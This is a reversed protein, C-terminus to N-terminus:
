GQGRSASKSLKDWGLATVIGLLLSAIAASLVMLTRQPKSKKDPAIAKDIVQFSMTEKAEDVKALELQQTLAEFVKQKIMLDRKLQALRLGLRPADKFAVWGGSSVNEISQLKKKLEVVDQKLALLHVDESSISDSQSELEMEKAILQSKLNSYAEVAATTQADLSVLQHQEQFAKLGQELAGMERQVDSVQQQLFVRNKQATSLSNNELFNSLAIVYNNAINAAVIPDSYEANIALIGSRSDVQFTMIRQMKRYAEQVSVTKKWSSHMPDWKEPFFLPMLNCRRIVKETLTRSKLLGVFRDPVSVKLGGGAQEALGGLSGLSSLVSSLRDTSSDAPLITATATYQNPQFSSFIAACITGLATMILIIPLRKRLTGIILRIDIDDEWAYVEQKTIM